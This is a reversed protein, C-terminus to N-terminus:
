LNEVLYRHRPLARKGLDWETTGETAADSHQQRSAAEVKKKFVVVCCRTATGPKIGVQSKQVMGVSCQSLGPIPNNNTRLPQVVWQAEVVWDHEQDRATVLRSSDSSRGRSDGCQRGFRGRNGSQRGGNDGFQRGPWGNSFWRRNGDWM